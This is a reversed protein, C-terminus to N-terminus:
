RAEVLRYRSDRQVPRYGARKIEERITEVALAQHESGASSVVNEEMMTSGYDDCGFRLATRAHDKGQTPWSAQHHAFNDLHIRSIAAHRLYEEPDAGLERGKKDGINGWATNEKQFSWSIFATFGSGHISSGHISSGHISSGHAALAADQRERLRDLHAIRQDITEGFGIVMTASTTLGLSQAHEMTLLWDAASQKKRSIRGRIEDDLIEAGGGPLGDQGAAKLAVLVERLTMNELKAIHDVESPSLADLDIDPHRASLGSLMEQYFALGLDPNHGGQLLVRTGGIAELEEIKASIQDLSLVYGEPHGVPRYFACFLCNTTCVNTYNINRDVLYTVADPDTRQRRLFDATAGLDDLDAERYLHLTEDTSLRAGDRAKKLLDTTSPSM